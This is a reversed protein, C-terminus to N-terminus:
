SHCLFFNPDRARSPKTRLGVLYGLKLCHKERLITCKGLRPLWATVVRPSEREGGQAEAVNNILIWLQIQPKPPNHVQWSPLVALNKQGPTKPNEIATVMVM